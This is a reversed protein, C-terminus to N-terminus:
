PIRRTSSSVTKSVFGVITGLFNLFSSVPFVMVPFIPASSIVLDLSCHESLYQLKGQTSPFNLSNHSNLSNWLVSFGKFITDRTEWIYRAPETTADQDKVCSTVPGSTKKQLSLYNQSFEISNHELGSASSVPLAILSYFSKVLHCNYTILFSGGDQMNDPKQCYSVILIELWM